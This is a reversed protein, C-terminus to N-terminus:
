FLFRLGLSIGSISFGGKDYYRMYDLTFYTNRLRVIQDEAGIGWSFGGGTEGAVTMQPGTVSLKAQTYGGLLYIRVRNHLESDLRLYGGYMNNLELHSGSDDDSGKTVYQLELAIQKRVYLGAVFKGNYPVFKGEYGTRGSKIETRMADAGVYFRDAANANRVLLFNV